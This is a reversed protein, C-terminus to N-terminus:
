CPILRPDYKSRIATIIAEREKKRMRERIGSMHTTTPAPQSASYSAADGKGRKTETTPFRINDTLKPRLYSLRTNPPLQGHGRALHPLAYWRTRQIPQKM